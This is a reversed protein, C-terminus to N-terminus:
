RAGGQGTQLFLVAEQMGAEIATSLGGKRGFVGSFSEPNADMMTMALKIDQSIRQPSCAYGDLVRM